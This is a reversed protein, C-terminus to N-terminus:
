GCNMRDCQHNRMEEGVEGGFGGVCVNEVM